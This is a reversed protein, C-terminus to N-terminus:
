LVNLNYTKLLNQSFSKKLMGGGGGAFVCVSLLIPVYLLDSRSTFGDCTLM